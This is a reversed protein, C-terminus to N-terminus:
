GAMSRLVAEMRMLLSVEQVFVRAKLLSSWAPMMDAPSVFKEQAAPAGVMSATVVVTEPDIQDLPTLELQSFRVALDGFEAGTKASGGGGGGLISGGLAAWRVHEETLKMGIHEM